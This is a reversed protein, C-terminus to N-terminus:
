AAPTPANAPTRAPSTTVDPTGRESEDWIRAPTATEKYAESDPHLEQWKRHCYKAPWKDRCSFDLMKTAIIDWKFKEWYDHAQQLAQIDEETWIRLKERLRKYRMQLAPVQYNRGLLQQFKIAIDKWPLSDQDKLQLLLREEENLDPNLQSVISRRTRKSISESGSDDDVRTRKPRIGFTPDQGLLSSTSGYAGSVPLYSPTPANTSPAPSLSFAQESGERKIGLPNHESFTLDSPHAYITGSEHASRHDSTPPYYPDHFPMDSPPFHDEISYGLESSYPTQLLTLETGTADFSPRAFAPLLHILFQGVTCTPLWHGEPYHSM